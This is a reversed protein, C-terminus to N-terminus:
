FSRVEPPSHGYDTVAYCNLLSLGLLSGSLPLPARRITALCNTGPGYEIQLENVELKM